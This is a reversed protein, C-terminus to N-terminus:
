GSMVDRQAIVRAPVGAIISNEAMNRTVVAGAAVVSDSGISVGPLIIARVGIWCRDGIRVDQEVTKQHMVARGPALEYNSATVFVGPGFSCEGGVYISGLSNGAWLACGDGLRTGPGISIREGNRFSATPSIRVGPGLQMKRRPQVHDYNHHNVVKAFDLWARLDTMSIVFRRLRAARASARWGQSMM